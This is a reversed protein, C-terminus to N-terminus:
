ELDVSKLDSSFTDGLIPRNGNKKKKKKKPPPPAPFLAIELFLDRYFRSIFEHLTLGHFFISSTSEVRWNRGEQM